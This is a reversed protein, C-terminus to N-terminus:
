IDPEIEFEGVKDCEECNPDEVYYWPEGNVSFTDIILVRNSYVKYTVIDGRKFKHTDACSFLLLTILLILIKNM